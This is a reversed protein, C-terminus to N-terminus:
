SLGELGPSRVIVHPQSQLSPRSGIRSMKGEIKTQGGPRQVFNPGEKKYAEVGEYLLMECIQTITRQEEDAIGQIDRRLFSDSVCSCRNDACIFYLTAAKHRMKLNGTGVLHVLAEAFTEFERVTEDLGRRDRWWGVKPTEWHACYLDSIQPKCSQLRPIFVGNGLCLRNFQTV